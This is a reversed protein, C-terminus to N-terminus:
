EPPCEQISGRPTQIRCCLEPGTRVSCPAEGSSDTPGALGGADRHVPQGAHDLHRFALRRLPRDGPRRRPDATRCSRLSVAQAAADGNADVVIGLAELGSARVEAEIVEPKLIENVSHSVKIYVPFNPPDPWTVGNAEMLYPIVSKDTEGEVLLKRPHNRVPM